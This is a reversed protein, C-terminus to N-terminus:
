VGLRENLREMCNRYYDASEGPPARRSLAEYVEAAEQWDGRRELDLAYREVSPLLDVSFTGAKMRFWNLERRVPWEMYAFIALGIFGTLPILLAWWRSFGAKHLIESPIWFILVILAVILNFGVISTLDV